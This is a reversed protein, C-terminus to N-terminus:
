SVLWTKRAELKSLSYDVTYFVYGLLIFLILIIAATLLVKAWGLADVDMFPYPYRSNYGIGNGIRAAVMAFVFYLLPAIMWELPSRKKMLGKKDFLLWDFIAMLPVIYHTIIISAGLLTHLDIDLRLLFHAVLMTLTTCMLAIGKLEPLWTTHGPSLRNRILYVEACTFYIVTLTNSLVTFYKFTSLHVSGEFVGLQILVGLTGIVVIAAKFVISLIKSKVYM